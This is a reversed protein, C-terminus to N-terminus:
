NNPQRLPVLSYKGLTSTIRLKFCENLEQVLKEMTDTYRSLEGVIVKEVDQKRELRSKTLVGIIGNFISPLRSRCIRNLTNSKGHALIEYLMRRVGSIGTGEVDLIPPKKPDWTSLWIQYQTNSIFHVPLDPATKSRDLDRFKGRLEELVDRNRIEITIQRIKAETLAIRVPMAELCSNIAREQERQAATPNDQDLAAAKDQKLTKEEAKLQAMFVEASNLLDRDEQSLELKSIEDINTVILHTDRIKGLRICERLNGDLTPSQDIRKINEFVLVTGAKKLYNTTADVVTRNTDTVGPTDALVLGANLLDKDQQVQVKPIIPWPHPRAAKGAHKPVRSVQRFINALESDNEAQYYEIDDELERTKKFDEILKKLEKVVSGEEGGLRDEFYEQAADKSALEAHNCLITRLFDIGTTYSEQLDAEDEEEDDDESRKIYNFINRCHQKVTTEIQSERHYVAAVQYLALQSAPARAYEHVVNTGRHTSDSELAAGRQDFLCNVFSSKGIGSPGLLAIPGIKPYKHHPLRFVKVHQVCIREIEENQYGQERLQEVVALFEDCVQTVLKEVKQFKPHYIALRPRGESKFSDYPNVYGDANINLKTLVDAEDSKFRKNGVNSTLRTELVATTLKGDSGQGEVGDDDKVFLTDLDRKLSDDLAREDPRGAPNSENESSM